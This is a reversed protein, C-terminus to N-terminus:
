FNVTSFGKVKTQSIDGTRDLSIFIDETKNLSISTNEDGRSNGKKPSIELYSFNFETIELDENNLPPFEKMDNINFGRIEKNVNM